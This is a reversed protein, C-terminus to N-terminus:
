KSHRRKTAESLKRRTEESVTVGKRPGPKGYMPNKDGKKAESINKRAEASLVRGKGADSIKRRTEETHVHGLLRTNGLMTKSMKLRSEESWVRGVASDRLKQKSVETWVISPRGGNGGPHLNCLQGGDIRMGLEKIIRIEESCADENSLGSIIKLVVPENGDRRIKAIVHAVHNNHVSYKLHRYCRDGNGKGVYFFEGDPYCLAYVYYNNM